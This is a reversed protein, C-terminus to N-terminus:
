AGPWVEALDAFFARRLAKRGRIQDVVRTKDSLIQADDSVLPLVTATLEAHNGETEISYYARAGDRRVMVLGARLLVALHHSIRPQSMALASTLESVALTGVKLANLLRLRTPDSLIRLLTTAKDLTMITYLYM